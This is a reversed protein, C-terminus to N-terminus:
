EFILSVYNQSDDVTEQEMAQLLKYVGEGRPSLKYEKDGSKALIGDSVLKRLHFSLKPSDRISLHNLIESFALGPISAVYRIIERRLANSLSDSLAQIASGSVLSRLSSLVDEPINANKLSIVLRAKKDGAEKQLKTIFPRLNDWGHREMLLELGDFLIVAEPNEQIFGEILTKLDYLNQPNVARDDHAENSLWLFQTNDLDQDKMISEPSIHSICLSPHGKALTSFENFPDRQTASSMPPLKGLSTQFAMEEQIGNVIQKLSDNGFPKRIYDSAGMKMAEIATDITAYGTIIVVYTEPRIVKIEQLLEIGSMGPMKMDTFVVDFGQARMMTLAEDGDGVVKVDFGSEVMTEEIEERVIRDDDVILVKM